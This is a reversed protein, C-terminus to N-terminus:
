TRSHCDPWVSPKPYIPPPPPTASPPIQSQTAEAERQFGASSTPSTFATGSSRATTQHRGFMRHHKKAISNKSLCVKVINLVSFCSAAAALSPTLLGSGARGGHWTCEPSNQTEPSCAPGTLVSDKYAVVQSSLATQRKSGQLPELPRLLFRAAQCAGAQSESGGEVCLLSRKSLREGAVYQPASWPSYLHALTHTPQLFRCPVSPAATVQDGLRGAEMGALSSPVRDWGGERRGASTGRGLHDM